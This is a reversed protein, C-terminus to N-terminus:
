LVTTKLQRSKVGGIVTLINRKFSFAPHRIEEAGLGKSFKRVPATCAGDSSSILEALRLEQKNSSRLERLNLHPSLMTLILIRSRAEANVKVSLNDIAHELRNSGAGFSRQNSVAEIATDM